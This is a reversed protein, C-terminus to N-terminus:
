KKVYALREKLLKVAMNRERAQGQRIADVLALLDYFAQDPYHLLSEPVCHYLPELALGRQKGQASPWILIPEQGISILGQFVPAAYSTAIGSTYAGVEAPFIYKIAHILLEECAPIVLQYRVNYAGLNLFGSKKLRDLSANIVSPSLCLHMGLQHQTWNLHAQNALLKLLLVIDQPKLM